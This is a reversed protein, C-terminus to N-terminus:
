RKFGDAFDAAARLIDSAIAGEFSVSDGAQTEAYSIIDRLIEATIPDYRNGDKPPFMEKIIKEKEEKIIQKLQRKTIKM